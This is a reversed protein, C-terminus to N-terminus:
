RNLKVSYSCLTVYRYLQVYVPIVYQKPIFHRYLRYIHAVSYSTPPKSCKKNKWINPLIMGVSKWIKWLPQLWWNAIINPQTQFHPICSYIILKSASFSSWGSSLLLTGCTWVFWMSWPYVGALWCYIYIHKLNIHKSGAHKLNRLKKVSTAQSWEILGDLHPFNVRCARWGWQGRHQSSQRSAYHTAAEDEFLAYIYIHTYLIIYTHIYVTYTYIM